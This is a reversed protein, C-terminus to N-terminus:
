VPRWRESCSRTLMQMLEVQVKFDLWKNEIVDVRDTKGGGLLELKRTNLSSVFVAPHTEMFTTPPHRSSWPLVQQNQQLDPYVSPDM